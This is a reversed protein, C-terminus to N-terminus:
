LAVTMDSDVKLVLTAAIPSNGTTANLRFTISNSRQMLAALQQQAKSDVVPLVIESGSAAIAKLDLQRFTALPYFRGSGPLAFELNGSIVSAGTGEYEKVAYTIANIKFSSIAGGNKKNDSKLTKVNKLVSFTQPANDTHHVRM